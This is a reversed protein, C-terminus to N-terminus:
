GLVVTGLIKVGFKGCVEKIRTIDDYRSVGIEEVLVVADASLLNKLSGSDILPSAGTKITCSRDNAYNNEINNRLADKFDALRKGSGTGAIYLNKLSDNSIGLRVFSCVIEMREAASLRMDNKDFLSEIFRDVKGFAKNYKREDRMIGLITLGFVDHLENGSKLKPSLIYLMIYFCCVLFAGGLAGLLINKVSISKAPVMVVNQDSESAKDSATSTSDELASDESLNEEEAFGERAIAMPDTANGGNNEEKVANLLAYYYARQDATMASSVQQMTKEISNLADNQAKQADLIEHSYEEYYISQMKELSHEYQLQVDQSAQEIRKVLVKMVAECEKKTPANVSITMIDLGTKSLGYLQRVFGDDYVWNNIKKIDAIVSKDYIANKYIAVINDVNTVTSQPPVNDDSYNSLKYTVCCNPVCFADYMLQISRNGLSLRDNYIKDYSLYTEVALVAEYKENYSLKSGLSALSSNDVTEVVEGKEDIVMPVKKYYSYMGAVIMGVLVFVLLVRWKLLLQHFVDILDIKMEDRYDM